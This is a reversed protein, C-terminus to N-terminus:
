GDASRETEAVLLDVRKPSGRELKSGHIRLEIDAIRRLDFDRGIELGDLIEQNILKTGSSIKLWPIATEDTEEPIPELRKPQTILRKL